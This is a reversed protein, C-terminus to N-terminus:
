ASVSYHDLLLYITSPHDTQIQQPPHTVATEPKVTAASSQSISGFRLKVLIFTALVALIGVLVTILIWTLLLTSTDKSGFQLKDLNLVIPMKLTSHNVQCSFQTSENWEYHPVVMSSLISYSGNQNHRLSDNSTKGTIKIGDKNWFLQIDEPYFDWASCVLMMENETSSPTALSLHVVPSALVTLTVQGQGTTVTPPPITRELTCSYTDSDRLSVHEIVIYFVQTQKDYDLNMRHICSNAWLNTFNGLRMYCLQDSSSNRLNVTTGETKNGQVCEMNVKEGQLASVTKTSLVPSGSNSMMGSSWLLLIVSMLSASSKNERRSLGMSLMM